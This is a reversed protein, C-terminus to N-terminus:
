RQRTEQPPEGKRISEVKVWSVDAPPEVPPPPPAPTDNGQQQSDSVLCGGPLRM